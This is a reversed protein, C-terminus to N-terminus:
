ADAEPEVTEIIGGCASYCQDYQETCMRTAPLPCRDVPACFRNGSKVCLEYERQYYKRQETCFRYADTQRKRCDTKTVNCQSVCRQSEPDSPETYVKQPGSSACAALLMVLAMVWMGRVSRNLGVQKESMM